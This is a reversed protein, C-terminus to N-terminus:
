RPYTQTQVPAQDYREVVFKDVSKKHLAAAM